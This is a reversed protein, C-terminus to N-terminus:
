INTILSTLSPCFCKVKGLVKGRMYKNVITNGRSDKRIEEIVVNEEEELRPKSGNIPTDVQM